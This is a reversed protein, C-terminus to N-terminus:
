MMALAALKRLRGDAALVTLGRSASTAGFCGLIEDASGATLDAGAVPVSRRSRM